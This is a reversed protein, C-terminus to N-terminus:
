KLKVSENIHPKQYFFFTADCTITREDSTGENVLIFKLIFTKDSCKELPISGCLTPLFDEVFFIIDFFIFILYCNPFKSEIDIDYGINRYM